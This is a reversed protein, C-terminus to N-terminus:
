QNEEIYKVLDNVTQFGNRVSETMEELGFAIEIQTYFCTEEVKDRFCEKLPSKLTLETEGCHEALAELLMKKILGKNM